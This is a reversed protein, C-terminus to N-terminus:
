PGTRESDVRLRLEQALNRDEVYDAFEATGITRHIREELACEVGPSPAEPAVSVPVPEIMIISAM